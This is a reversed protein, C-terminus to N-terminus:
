FTSVAIAAPHLAHRRHRFRHAPRQILQIEAHCLRPLSRLLELPQRPLKLHSLYLPLRNSLVPPRARWVRYKGKSAWLFTGLAFPVGRWPGESEGASSVLGPPPSFESRESLAWRSSGDQSHQEAHCLPFQPTVQKRYRRLIPPEQGSQAPSRIEGLIWGSKLHRM